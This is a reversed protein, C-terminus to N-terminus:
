ACLAETGPNWIVNYFGVESFKDLNWGFKTRIEDREFKGHQGADNPSVAAALAPSRARTCFGRATYSPGAVQCVSKTESHKPSM